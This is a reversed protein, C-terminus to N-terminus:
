DNKGTLEELQERVAQKILNGLTGLEEEELPLESEESGQKEAAKQKLYNVAEIGPMALAAMIIAPAFNIGMQTVVDAVLQINEPTIMELGEDIDEVESIANMEDPDDETVDSKVNTAIASEVLSIEELIIEKLRTRTLKM